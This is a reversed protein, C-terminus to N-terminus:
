TTLSTGASSSASTTVELIELDAPAWDKPPVWLPLNQTRTNMPTLTRAYQSRRRQVMHIFFLLCDFNSLSVFLRFRIWSDLTPYAYYIYLCGRMAKKVMSTSRIFLRRHFMYKNCIPPSVTLLQFNLWISCQWPLSSSCRTRRASCFNPAGMM